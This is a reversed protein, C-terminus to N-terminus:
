EIVEDARMLMAHPVTLGLAMATKLNIVLEFMTPQEVPLDAPKAGKLIKDVYGAALRYMAPYNPGYSMLGGADTYQRQAFMSPLRHGIAIEALRKRDLNFSPSTLFLLADGPRASVSELAGVYDYPQDRFEVSKVQLKLAQAAEATAAVQDASIADWLVIARAMNPIAEKLLELRKATLEIQRLFVGTINGGPRALSAVYGRALPDFDIAMMVIPITASAQMAAKVATEQGTTLIVDVKRRALEAMAEPYREIKGDLWLTDIALTKGEVYGLEDLRRGFAISNNSRAAAPSFNVIGVRFMKGRVEEARAPLALAAAGGLLSLLERRRM